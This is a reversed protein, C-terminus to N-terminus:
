QAISPRARRYWDLALISEGQIPAGPVAVFHEEGASKTGRPKDSHSGRWDPVGSMETDPAMPQKSTARAHAPRQPQASAVDANAPRQQLSAGASDSPSWQPSAAAQNHVRPQVAEQGWLSLSGEGATLPEESYDHVPWTSQSSSEEPEEPYFASYSLARYPSGASGHVAQSSGADPVSRCAAELGSAPSSSIGAAAATAAAARSAQAAASDPQAKDPEAASAGKRPAEAREPTDPM